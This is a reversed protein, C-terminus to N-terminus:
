RWGGGLSSYLTVMATLQQLKDSIGSLQAALLSQESTLVDTYNTASSFKLLEKTYDVSKQLYNIQESRLGEKEVASTYSYLADSVEQGATLVTKKFTALDEELTAKAVALRQRNLGQNLIPQLLGGTINAFISAANFIQGLSSSSWGGSATITLAPYFSTKAVNVLEFSNRVQYEAQQVDPRNALLQAPVGTKLGTTIIQNNLSTRAISDPARGLLLSISNETERISRKLDPITVEVSYRNAASQVVAAGTVVDSEKLVKMTEVEEKRLALTQQTVQLQADYSLLLYYASAINAVLQTQVTRKYAESKLLAALTARKASSLQGWIDAEWGANLALTYTYPFGFQTSAVRQAEATPNADLTPLLAQKSQRFNAAAAKIRAVAVKLDLNNDIGEQILAQLLTDSFLHKWSMNAITTTDTTLGDRYLHIDAAVTQPKYPQTVKCSAFLVVISVIAPIKYRLNTRIVNM